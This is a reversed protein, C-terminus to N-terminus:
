VVEGALAARMAAIASRAKAPDAPVTAAKPLAKPIERLPEGALVMKCTLEYARGFLARAPDMQLRGLSYLGAELAAHRVAIHSWAEPDDIRGGMVPHSMRLAERFAKESDPLGLMEPTPACWKVFKGASPMFDGGSTRAMKLGFRIQEVRTIGAAMFAKIWSRKAAALAEDDPWAQKWAPFIAQLERFLKNVVLATGQDIEVPVAPAGGMGAALVRQATVSVQKM